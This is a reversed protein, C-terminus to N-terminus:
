NVPGDPRVHAGAAAAIDGIWDEATYEAAIPKFHRVSRQGVDVSKERQLINTWSESPCAGAIEYVADEGAEVEEAKTNLMIGGPPLTVYECAGPDCQEDVMDFLQAISEAAYIGVSERTRIVRVFFVRM